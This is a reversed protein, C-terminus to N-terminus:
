QGVGLMVKGVLGWAENCAESEPAYSYLMNRMYGTESWVIRMAIPPYVLDGYGDNLLQMGTQHATTGSRYMTPQIGLIEVPSLGVALSENHSKIHEITNAVGNLSLAELQTPIMVYDSANLLMVNLLSPTPSTDIVVWDALGQLQALRKRLLHVDEVANPILRTKINSALVSLKGEVVYEGAWTEPNPAILVEEWDYDDVILDFLSQNRGPAVDFSMTGNGQPDADIFLVRAGNIALGAAIHTAVTSKGVGGKENMLTLVNMKGKM